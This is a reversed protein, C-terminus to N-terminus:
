LIFPIIAKRGKPYNKFEKKYQKHKGLAWIAMQGFGVISFIAASIICNIFTILYTLSNGPLSQTLVSFAVWSYFEYTYNPCSVFNFLWTLPNSTPRPIKRERTGPPRLNRLAIHISFNGLEFLQFIFVFYYFAKNIVQYGELNM